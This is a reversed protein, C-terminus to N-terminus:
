SNIATGTRKSAFLVRLKKAESERSLLYGILPGIGFSDYQDRMAIAMLAEEMRKELAKSRNTLLFEDLAVSIARGNKGKSLAKPLQELPLELADLIDKYSIEGGPILLNKLKDAEMKLSRARVLSQINTFDIQATFYDHLFANRNKKLVNKIHQFVARDVAASLLQPDPGDQEMAKEVADLEETFANPLFSYDKNKVCKELLEISFLGGELLLEKSSLGLIRTKLLTKLNHADAPLLFLDTLKPNPTIEYILSRVTALEAKILPEIDDRSTVGAGYGTETLVRIGDQLDTEKLRNWKNQDLARTELVKIRGVAYPYSDQPM